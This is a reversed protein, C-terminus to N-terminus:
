RKMQETMQSRIDRAEHLIFEEVFDGSICARLESKALDVSLNKAVAKSADKCNSYFITAAEELEEESFEKM